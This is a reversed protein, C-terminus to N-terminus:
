LTVLFPLNALELLGVFSLYCPEQGRKNAINANKKSFRLSPKCSIKTASDHTPKMSWVLPSVWKTINFNDKAQAAAQVADVLFSLPAVYQEHLPSKKAKNQAREEDATENATPLEDETDSLEMDLLLSGDM